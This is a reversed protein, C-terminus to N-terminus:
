TTSKESDILIPIREEYGMSTCFLKYRHRWLFSQFKGIVKLEFTHNISGYENQAVCMYETADKKILGEM